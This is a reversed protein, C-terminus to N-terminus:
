RDESHYEPDKFWKSLDPKRYTKPKLIKGQENRLVKGGPGLKTLNSKHVDRTALIKLRDLGFSLYTGDLVYQLDTLEKLLNVLDKSHIAEEVEKLEEKMLSLRLECTKLDPICPEQAIPVGFRKHFDRVYEITERSHWLKYDFDM